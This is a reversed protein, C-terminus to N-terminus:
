SSKVDRSIIHLMVFPVNVVKLLSIITRLLKKHILTKQYMIHEISKKKYSRLRLNLTKM